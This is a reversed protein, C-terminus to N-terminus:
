VAAHQATEDGLDELKKQLDPSAGLAELVDRLIGQTTQGKRTQSLRKIAKPLEEVEALASALLKVTQELHPLLIDPKAAPIDGLITQRILEKQPFLEYGIGTIGLDQCAALSVGSGLFPDLVVECQPVLNICRRALEIPFPAEHGKKITKGSTKEYPIFWINGADRKDVESYRGINSKDAYPIGIAKTDYRYRKKDKTLVYVNEWINNLRRSGGSPTYHGRGLLSKAWVVTQLHYFGASKALELVAQSKGQDTASDGINLFFVGDRKLSRLCEKFVAKLLNHYKETPLADNACRKDDSQYKKGRNYPPSTVVVDISDDKVQSMKECSRYYVQQKGITEASM